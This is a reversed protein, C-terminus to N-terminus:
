VPPPGDTLRGSAYKHIVSSMLAECPVGQEVAQRQLAELDTGSVHINVRKEKEFTARAYERYRDMEGDRNAVPQWEGLEYTTLLDKEERDIDGM